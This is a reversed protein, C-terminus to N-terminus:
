TFRIRYKLADTYNSSKQHFIKLNEFDPSTINGPNTVDEFVNKIKAPIKEYIPKLQFLINQNKISTHKKNLHVM